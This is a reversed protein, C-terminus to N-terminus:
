QLQRVCIDNQGNQGSGGSTHTFGNSELDACITYGTTSTYHRYYGGRPDAPVGNPFYATGLNYYYSTYYRYNAEYYQELASQIAKMDARRRADRSKKSAGSYAAIGIASLIAIVSVVVLLEILTFGRKKM